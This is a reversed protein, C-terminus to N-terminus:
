HCIHRAEDALRFTFHAFLMALAAPMSHRALNQGVCDQSGMSYPVYRKAAREGAALQAAPDLPVAVCTGALVRGPMAPTSAFIDTVHAM